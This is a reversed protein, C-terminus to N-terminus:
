VVRYSETRCTHSYNEQWGDHLWDVSLNYALIWVEAAKIIYEFFNCDFAMEIDVFAALAIERHKVVNKIHTVM